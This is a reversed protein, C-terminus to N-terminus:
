DLGVVFARRLQGFSTKVEDMCRDANSIFANVQVDRLLAKANQLEQKTETNAISSGQLDRELARVEDQTALFSEVKQQLEAEMRRLRDAKQHLEENSRCSQYM